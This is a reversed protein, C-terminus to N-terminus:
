SALGCLIFGLIQQCKEECPTSFDGHYFSGSRTKKGIFFECIGVPQLGNRAAHNLLKPACCEGTGTPIGGTQNEKLGLFAEQLSSTQGCFNHLTYLKHIETTLMKSCHRRERKLAAIETKPIQTNLGKEIVASLAKIRREGNCTLELFDAEAFIPPVWGEVQWVSNYQGSFAYLFSNNGASDIYELIGFM